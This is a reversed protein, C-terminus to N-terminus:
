YGMDRLRKYLTTNSMRIQELPVVVRGKIVEYPLEVMGNPTSAWQDYLFIRYYPPELVMSKQAVADFYLQNGGGLYPAKVDYDYSQKFGLPQVSKHFGQQNAIEGELLNLKSDKPVTYSTVILFENWEELVASTMMADMQSKPFLSSRTWWTGPSGKRFGHISQFRSFSEGPMPSVKWFQQGRFGAVNNPVPIFKFSDNFHGNVYASVQSRGFFGRSKLSLFYEREHRTLNAELKDLGNGHLGTFRALFDRDDKTLSVNRLRQQIPLYVSNM